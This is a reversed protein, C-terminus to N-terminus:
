LCLEEIKTTLATIPGKEDSCNRKLFDFRDSDLYPIKKENETYYNYIRLFLQLPFSIYCHHKDFTYLHNYDGAYTSIWKRLDSNYDYLSLPAFPDTQPSLKYNIFNRSNNFWDVPSKNDIENILLVDNKFHDKFQNLVVDHSNGKLKVFGESPQIKIGFPKKDKYVIAYDNIGNFARAFYFISYYSQIFSWSYNKKHLSNISSTFSILGNILFADIDSQLAKRAINLDFTSIQYNDIDDLYGKVEFFHPLRLSM